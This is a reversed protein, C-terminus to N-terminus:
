DTHEIMGLWSELSIGEISIIRVEEWREKLSKGDYIKANVLEDATNFETGNPIDCYGVWYPMDYQPLYGLFREVRNPDDVFYFCTEDIWIGKLLQQFFCEFDLTDKGDSSSKM